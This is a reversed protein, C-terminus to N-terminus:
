RVWLRELCASSSGSGATLFCYTYNGTKRSVFEPNRSVNLVVWPARDTIDRDIKTWLQSAAAPDNIQLRRARAITADIRRDCFQPNCTFNSLVDNASPYDLGLGEVGAQRNRRWTTGTHPILRLHANYGISRLVSVIYGGLRHGIPIDYFWVTIPQGRTGSAAVLRRARALDPGNYTGAGNPTLTYPCFPRYGDSNPPLMQCSVQANDPGGWIEVLRNRDVAYNVAQRVRVDDFPSLGTNMWLGLTALGPAVYLRSSYRKQLSSLVAPPWTDDFGTSTINAVGREVARVASAGNSGWREVIQDPFGDPRAASWVHFRTNRVLRVVSRKADIEKIEYPGTAPLPLHTKLPTQAPVADAIPLALKYLFDPDPADLHFTVSNSSPDTAIGQSLNCSKPRAVCGSAGVIGSLYLGPSPAKPSTSSSALTREIGRRVDAPRVTAGTSYHIGPRLQFTYTKGGDSVTPLATALDPVVRFSEAGGSRGYGVLGDNTATLLEWAAYGSAPDLSNPLGTDYSGSQNPVLLTLTGGRHAAGSGQVAVYTADGSAAVGQPQNGVGVRTVVRGASPDIKSLTGALSSSVWVSGGPAVAVGSPGEDVPIADNVKNTAPDIRSVTADAGNTVWVAGPGAAVASPANGVNIPTVSRSRPDIRSVVGASESSVWVAGDGAAIADAGSQVPIPRGKAGSLPDIRVVTRDVANAVWVGGLGYAIGRPGNGVPITDVVQGGNKQPDIRSVTGASANTVWVFGHGVAIGEPDNGVAITQQVTSTAPDIRSVSDQDPITAWVSRQGFAIAKPSAELAVSGTPKGSSPDVSSVASAGPSASKPSGGTGGSSLAFVPIAVAAALVGVVAAALMSRHRFLPGKVREAGRLPPFEAQLGEAEVQSIREPREIDKLRYRGLDRLFTDAPLDDEVLARTSESVLVQGGHAVAGVRAARHVSIGVYRGAAGAAEGSHIGIRVRVRAGEPWTHDALALEIAVAARLADGAGRFAVFFSDGQTDVEEGNHAAFSERLLHQQDALVQGYRERGLAKLLNTSGEIDTFLFTVTGSLRESM